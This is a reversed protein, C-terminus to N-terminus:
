IAAARAPLAWRKASSIMKKLYTYGAGAEAAALAAMIGAAGAGIVLIEKM